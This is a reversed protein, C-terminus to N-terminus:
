IVLCFIGNQFEKLIPNKQAYANLTAYLTPMTGLTIYFDYRNPDRKELEAELDKIKDENEKAEAKLQEILTANESAQLQLSAIKEKLDDTEGEASCSAASFLFVFSLLLLLMKCLINKKKMM